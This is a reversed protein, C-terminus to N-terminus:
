QKPPPPLASSHHHIISWEDGRKAIVFTFRSPRPPAGDPKFEYFGVSMVVADSLVVLNRQSFAVSLKSGPLGKFYLRIADTGANLTPSSTGHLLADPAYLKVVAEADNAIFASAWRDLVANAAAEPGELALAGHMATLIFLLTLTSRKM